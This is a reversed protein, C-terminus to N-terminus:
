DLTLKMSETALTNRFTGIIGCVDQGWQCKLADVMRKVEDLEQCVLIKLMEAALAM